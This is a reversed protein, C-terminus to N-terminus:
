NDLELEKLGNGSMQSNMITNSDNSGIKKIRTASDMEINEQNEAPAGEEPQDEM